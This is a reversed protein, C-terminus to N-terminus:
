EEREEDGSAGSGTSKLREAIRKLSDVVSDLVTDYDVATPLAIPICYRGDKTRWKVVETDVLGAEQLQEHKDYSFLLWLPTDGHQAWGDLIFGFWAVVGGIRFYRGYGEYRPAIKLKSTDLFEEAIGSNTADDVLTILGLM